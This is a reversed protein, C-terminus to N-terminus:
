ELSKMVSPTIEPFTLVARGKHDRMFELADAKKSFPILEKGMPGFVDSGSVYFARYGDLHSVSYYDTVYIAAIDSTKKGPTFRAIASRYKLMDKVGDFVAYTGDRFIIQAVFDPYKAVFMGCVPCKDKPLPTVPKPGAGLASSALFITLLISVFIKAM